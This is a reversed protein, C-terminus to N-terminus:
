KRGKNEYNSNALTRQSGVKVKWRVHEKKADQDTTRITMVAKVDRNQTELESKADTEDVQSQSGRYHTNESSQGATMESKIDLAGCNPGKWSGLRDETIGKNEVTRQLFQGRHRQGLRRDVRLRQRGGEM